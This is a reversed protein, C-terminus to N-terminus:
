PNIKWSNIRDMQGGSRMRKEDNEDMRELNDAGASVVTGSFTRALSFPINPFWTTAAIYTVYTILVEIQGDMTISRKISSRLLGKVMLTRVSSLANKLTSGTRSSKIPQSRPSHM